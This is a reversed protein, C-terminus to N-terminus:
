ASCAPPTFRERAQLGALQLPAWHRVHPVCRGKEDRIQGCYGRSLGTENAIQSPTLSRICLGSDVAPVGVGNRHLRGADGGPASGM